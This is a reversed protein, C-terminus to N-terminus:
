FNILERGKTYMETPWGLLTNASMYTSCLSMAVPAVSINKGAMLYTENTQNGRDKILYFLGILLSIILMAVLVLFDITGFSPKFLITSSNNTLVQDM